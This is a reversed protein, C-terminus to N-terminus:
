GQPELGAGAKRRTAMTGPTQRWGGAWGSSARVELLEGAGPVSVAPSDGFGVVLRMQATGFCPMVPLHQVGLSGTWLAPGWQRSLAALGLPTRSYRIVSVCGPGNFCAPAKKKLYSKGGGVIKTHM